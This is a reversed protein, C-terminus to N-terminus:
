ESPAPMHVVVVARNFSHVITDSVSGLIMRKIAGMGRSGVVVAAVNEANAIAPIVERADGEEARIEYKLKKPELLDQALARLNKEAVTNLENRVTDMQVDMLLDVEAALVVTSVPVSYAQLLIVTDEPQVMNEVAWEVAYKSHVSGDVGILVRKM